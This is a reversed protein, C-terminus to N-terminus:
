MERMAEKEYEFKTTDYGYSIFSNRGEETKNKNESSIRINQAEESYEKGLSGKGTVKIDDIITKEAENIGDDGSHEPDYQHHAIPNESDAPTALDAWYSLPKDKIEDNEGWSYKQAQTVDRNQDTSTEKIDKDLFTEAAVEKSNTISSAKPYHIRWKDDGQIGRSSYSNSFDRLSQEM